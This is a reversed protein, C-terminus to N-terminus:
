CLAKRSTPPKNLLFFVISHSQTIKQFRRGQLAHHYDGCARSSYHSSTGLRGGRILPAHFSKRQEFLEFEVIQADSATVRHLVLRVDQLGALFKPRHLNLIGASSLILSSVVHLAM